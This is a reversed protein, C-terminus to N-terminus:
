RVEPVPQDQVEAYLRIADAVVAYIKKGSKAALERAQAHAAATVRVIGFSDQKKEQEQRPM